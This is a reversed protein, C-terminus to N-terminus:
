EIPLRGAVALTETNKAGPTGMVRDLSRRYDEAKFDMFWRDMEQGRYFLIVTPVVTIDYQEKIAISNYMFLPNMHRYKAITARGRYEEALSDMVPELAACSPCGTKYFVVLVPKDAKTVKESFEKDNEIATLKTGSCGASALAAVACVALTAVARWTDRLVGPKDCGGWTTIPHFTNRYAM